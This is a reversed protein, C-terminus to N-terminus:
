NFTATAASMIKGFVEDPLYEKAARYFAEANTQHYTRLQLRIDALEIQVKDLEMLKHRKADRARYTWQKNAATLPRSSLQANIKQIEAQLNSQDIRLQKQRDYLQQKNM